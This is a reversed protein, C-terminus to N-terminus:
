GKRLSPRKLPREPPTPMSGPKFSADLCGARAWADIMADSIGIEERLSRKL